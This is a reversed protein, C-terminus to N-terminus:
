ARGSAPKRFSGKSITYCRELALDRPAVFCTAPFRLWCAAAEDERGARGGEGTEQNLIFWTLHLQSTVVHHCIHPWCPFIVDSNLPRESYIEFGFWGKLDRSAFPFMESSPVGSISRVLEAPLVDLFSYRAPTSVSLVHLINSSRRWFVIVSSNTEICFNSPFPRPIFEKRAKIKFLRLLIVHGIGTGGDCELGLEKQNWPRKGGWLRWQGLFPDNKSVSWFYLAM